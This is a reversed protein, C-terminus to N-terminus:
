SGPGIGADRSRVTGHGALGLAGMGRGDRWDHGTAAADAEGHASSRGTMVLCKVFASREPQVGILFRGDCRYGSRSGCWPRRIFPLTMVPLHRVKYSPLCLIPRWVCASARRAMLSASILASSASIAQLWCPERSIYCQLTSCHLAPNPLFIRRTLSKIREGPAYRTHRHCPVRHTFGLYCLKGTWILGRGEIRVRDSVM